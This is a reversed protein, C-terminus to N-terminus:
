EKNVKSSEETPKSVSQVVDATTKYDAKLAIDAQSIIGTFKGEKDVVPVRRIMNKEMTHMVSEISDDEDITVVPTSMIEGARVMMPNIQRAVCRTVIDRDTVVGVIKLNDNNDVVPVAGIDNEDMKKAVVNLDQEPTVYVPIKTMIDKVKM